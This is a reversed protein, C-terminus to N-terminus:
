GMDYIFSPGNRRTFFPGTKNIDGCYVKRHFMILEIRKKIRKGRSIFPRYRVAQHVSWVSVANVSIAAAKEMRLMLILLVHKGACM